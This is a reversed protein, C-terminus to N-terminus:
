RKTGPPMRRSKSGDLSVHQLRMMGAKACLQLSQRFLGQLAKGHRQRFLAITRFDPRDQGVIAMCDLRQECAKAIRRSSYIGQTYAFLLLAVMLRPDFPPQGKSGTYGAYVESLDLAHTALDRILHAPHGPPVYDHVSPPLLQIQELNWPRFPRSAPANMLLNELASWTQNQYCTYIFNQIKHSSPCAGPRWSTAGLTERFVPCYIQQRRLSPLSHPAMQKTLSRVQWLGSPQAQQDGPTSAAQPCTAGTTTQM